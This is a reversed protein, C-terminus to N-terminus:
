LPEARRGKLEWALVQDTEAPLRRYTLFGNETQIRASESTLALLQRGNLLWLLGYHSIRAFPKDPHCGFLELPGWGLAEARTGWGEDLFRGCDDLFRVWRRHPVDAPPRSPDLRALAEAWVRPAGGDYEAIAAREEFAAADPVEIPPAAVKRVRVGTPQGFVATVRGVFAVVSAADPLVRLGEVPVASRTQTEATEATRPVTLLPGDMVSTFGSMVVPKNELLLRAIAGASRPGRLTLKDGDISVSLGAERAQRILSMGDM